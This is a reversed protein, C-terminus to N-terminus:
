SPPRMPYELHIDDGFIARRRVGEITIVHAGPLVLCEELRVPVDITADDGVISEILQVREDLRARQGVLSSRRQERLMRLNCALLDDPYTVNIDWRVVDAAFLPRGFDVMIQIADT